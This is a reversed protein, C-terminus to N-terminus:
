GLPLASTANVATHVSKTVSESRRPEQIHCCFSGAERTVRPQTLSEQQPSMCKRGRDFTEEGAGQGVLLAERLSLSRPRWEDREGAM